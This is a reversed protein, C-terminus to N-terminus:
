GGGGTLWIPLSNFCLEHMHFIICLGLDMYPYKICTAIRRADHQDRTLEVELKLGSNRLTRRRECGGDNGAEMM